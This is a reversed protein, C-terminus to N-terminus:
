IEHGHGRRHTRGVQQDDDITNSMDILLALAAAIEAATDASRGADHRKSPQVQGQHVTAEQPLHMHSRHSDSHMGSLAHTTDAKAARDRYPAKAPDWQQSKATARYLPSTASLDERGPMKTTPNRIITLPGTLEHCTSRTLLPQQWVSPESPCDNHLASPTEIVGWVASAESTIEEGTTLSENSLPSAANERPESTAQRLMAFVRRMRYALLGIIALTAAGSVALASFTNPIAKASAVAVLGAVVAGTSPLWLHGGLARLRIGVRRLGGLYCPLVAFTAVAAEALAAGYIGDARAGTILAPILTALWLIQVLLLFRSRGLVVLYDYALLFFIRMAGLLALWLLPQAAPLWRPGYVFSILPRASGGIVLCAPLAVAGLLGAVTVFTKRMAARDPQLRSFVAPAVSAVPQSFMNIPWSALNLALVYFGLTVPGLVHGVVLQDVSTVGFTVFNSGALPLGFRLLALAKARDFGLHLSQPAFTVLLIVVILAGIVQGVALSMAGHGSWALAVTVGTGLWGGVQLAIVQQRQRFHRQLLGSPTNAFGDILIALALVRVINTAAPAGMAAAYAPAIFFCAAYTVLSVLVSIVTVTPIIEDPDSEWRVIALSVGLENFTQMANLAVLAVAYMGFAHPGLLRALMVGIAFTGFRTLLTSAFIWGFARSAKATLTSNDSLQLAVRRM